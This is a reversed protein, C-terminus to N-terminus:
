LSLNLLRLIAAGAITKFIANYWHWVYGKVRALPLVADQDSVIKYHEIASDSGRGKSSPARVSGQRLKVSGSRAM